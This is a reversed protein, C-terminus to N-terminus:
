TLAEGEIMRKLRHFPLRLVTTRPDEEEPARCRVHHKRLRQGHTGGGINNPGTSVRPTLLAHDLFTPSPVDM